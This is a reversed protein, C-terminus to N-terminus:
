YAIGIRSNIYDASLVQTYVFDAVDPISIAIGDQPLFDREIRYYGTFNGSSLYPPCIITWQLDSDRLLRFVEHHEEAAWISKRKSEKSQYRLLSPDMQSQLIGATGVTIIRKIAQKNMAELILQMSDSLTTTGDTSLASIVVEIGSLAKAIDDKNLVNGSIITLRQDDMIKKPQRVLVTVDHDGQLVNNLVYGGVRGTAGLILIKILIGGQM